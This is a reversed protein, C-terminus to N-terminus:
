AAERLPEMAFAASGALSIDVYLNYTVSNLERGAIV